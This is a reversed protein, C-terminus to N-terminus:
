IINQNYNKGTHANIGTGDPIDSITIIELTFSHDKGHFNVLTGDPNYFAIHLEFLENLPDEYYHIMPVFTDFLVKGPCDSLLIKAFGNRIPGFTYFTKIPNAVM